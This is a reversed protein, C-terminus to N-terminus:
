KQIEMKIDDICATLEIPFSDLTNGYDDIVFVNVTSDNYVNVIIHYLENNVYMWSKATKGTIM